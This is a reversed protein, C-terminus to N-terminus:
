RAPAGMGWNATPMGAGKWLPEEQPSSGGLGSAGPLSRGEGPPVEGCLSLSAPQQGPPRGRRHRCIQECM